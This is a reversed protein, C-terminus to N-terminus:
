TVTTVPAPVSNDLFGHLNAGAFNPLTLGRWLTFNTWNLCVSSSPVVATVM